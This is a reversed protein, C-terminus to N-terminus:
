FALDPTTWPHMHAHRSHGLVLRSRADMHPHSTAPGRNGLVHADQTSAVNSPRHPGLCTCGTHIRCHHAQTAWSMCTPRQPGLCTCGTHIRRQQAQTAWSMCTPRQPGLCACGTHIRRQNAQTVWAVHMRHPHSMAPGTHGLVHM